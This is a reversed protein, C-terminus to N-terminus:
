FNLQYGYHTALDHALQKADAATHANQFFRDWARNYEAWTHQHESKDWWAGFRPDHIDIGIARFKDEFAQPFIHHAQEGHLSGRRQTIRILNDKFNAATYPTVPRTPHLEMPALFIIPLGLGPLELGPAELGGPAPTEGPVASPPGEGVSNPEPKPGVEPPLGPPPPAIRPPPPSWPEMGVGAANKQENTGPPGDSGPAKPDFGPSSASGPNGPAGVQQGDQTDTHESHPGPLTDGSLTSTTHSNPSAYSIKVAGPQTNPKYPVQAPPPEAPPKDASSEVDAAPEADDFGSPDILRLPNNVVYAYRNLYQSSFPDQIVPNAQLFQATRPDYMRGRMNVLGLEADQEQSTFGITVGNQSPPAASSTWDANRANGFADYSNEDVVTGAGDTVLHTSGLNDAHLFRVTANAQGETESVQSITRDGVNVYFVHETGAGTKSARREYLGDVYATILTSTEKRIRNQSADYEFHVPNVKDTSSTGEQWIDTPMNFANWAYDSAAGGDTSAEHLRNGNNDYIFQTSGAVQPAHIPNGLSAIEAYGYLGTATSNQIRGIDDYQYRKIPPDGFQCSPNLAVPDTNAGALSCLLRDLRDYAFSEWQGRVLDQRNLVNGMPDLSYQLSQITGAGITSQIGQLRGNANYNRTTSVGNGFSEVHLQDYNDTANAPDVSWYSGSPVITKTPDQVAILHGFIDYSNQVHVQAFGPAQPYFVDSIRGSPDYKFSTSFTGGADGAITLDTSLLHGTATDYHYTRSHGDPTTEFTLTGVLKGTTSIDDGDWHWQTTRESGEFPSEDREIVEGSRMVNCLSPTSTQMRKWSSNTWGMTSSRSRDSDPDTVQNTRGYDDTVVTTQNGLVDTISSIDGFPGYIYSTGLRTAAAALATNCDEPSSGPDVIAINRGREDATTCKTFGNPNTACSTRGAYCSTATESVGPTDQPLHVVLTRGLNDYEIQALFPSTVTPKHPREISVAFGRDDFTTTQEVPGSIGTEQGHVARGLLDYDTTTIQGESGLDDAQETLVIRYPTSAGAGLEYSIIDQTNDPHIRQRVRGFDDLFTSSVLGNPDTSQVVTGFRVDVALHTVQTKLNTISAPTIGQADYGISVGRVHGDLDASSISITNGYQDPVYTTTNSELGNGLRQATQMLGNPFYSYQEERTKTSAALAPLSAAITSTEKRDHVLDVQFSNIRSQDVQYEYVFNVDRSEVNLQSLSQDWSDHEHVVSGFEDPKDFTSTERRILQQDDFSTGETQTQVVQQTWIELGAVGGLDFTTFTNAKSSIRTLGTDPDIATGRTTQQPRLAFPYLGFDADFTDTDYLVSTTSMVQKSNTDPDVIEQIDRRSFGLWQHRPLDTRADTYTYDTERAPPVGAAIPKNDWTRVDKVVRRPTNLECREPYLCTAGSSYVSPDKLPRYELDSHVGMSDTIGTIEPAVPGSLHLVSWDSFARAGVVEPFGDGDVDALLPNDSDFNVLDAPFNQAFKEAVFGAGTSRAWAWNSGTSMVLDQLGDGNVDVPVGERFVALLNAPAGVDVLPQHIKVFNGDGRSIEILAGDRAAVVLDVLGDGNVDMTHVAANTFNDDAPALDSDSLTVVNNNDIRLVKAPGGEPIERLLLEDRGDGDVDITLYGFYESPNCGIHLDLVVGPAFPNAIANTGDLNAPTPATAESTIPLGSHNNRYLTWKPSANDGSTAHCELFDTTGDGDVDLAFQSSLYVAVDPKISGTETTPGTTGLGGYAVDQLDIRQIVGDQMAIVSFLKQAAGEDDCNTELLQDHGDNGLRVVIGDGPCLRDWSRFGDAFRLAGPLIRETPIGTFQRLYTGDPQSLMAVWESVCLGLPQQGEQQPAAVTKCDFTLPSDHAIPILFDSRGDGNLDLAYRRIPQNVLSEPNLGEPYLTAGNTPLQEAPISSDSTPGTTM